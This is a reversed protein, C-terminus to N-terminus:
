RTLNFILLAVTTAVSIVSTTIALNRTFLQDDATLKKNSSEVYVIDNQQLTFYPSRFADYSQLNVMGFERKNNTERIVHVRNKLGYITIDGSQGLAELLNLKGDPSHIVGQKNVEGLVTVRFNQFEITVVPNSLYNQLSDTLTSKLQAITLGAAKIKGLQPFIIYGDAAVTYGPQNNSAANPAPNILNYPQSAALDLSSVIVSLKDAPQIRSDGQAILSANEHPSDLFYNLNQPTRCSFLVIMATLLAIIKFSLPM